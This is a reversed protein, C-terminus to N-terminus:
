IGRLYKFIFNENFVYWISTYRNDSLKFKHRSKIPTLSPYYTADISVLKHHETSWYVTWFHGGVPTNGICCYLLYSPVGALRALIYILANQGDCDDIGNQITELATAWYENKGYQLKDYKYKINQRVWTLINIITNDISTDDKLSQALNVLIQDPNYLQEKLFKDLRKSKRMKSDIMYYYISQFWTLDKIDFQAEILKKAFGDSLKIEM